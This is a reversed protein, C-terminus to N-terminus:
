KSLIIKRTESFDGAKLSVLYTGAAHQTGDFSVKYSGPEYTMNDLLVQVTRGTLDM